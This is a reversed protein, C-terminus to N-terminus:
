ATRRLDPAQGEGFALWGSPVDLASALSAVVGIDPLENRGSEIQGVVASSLGSRLSLGRQSLGRAVRTQRLRWAFLAIGAVASV